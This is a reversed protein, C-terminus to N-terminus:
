GVMRRIVGIADEVSEVVHVQGMWADAWEQEAATLKRKSAPKTGDKVELLYNKGAHGVVLDPCGRGVTALSMVTCGIARLADVIAAQNADIRAARRM